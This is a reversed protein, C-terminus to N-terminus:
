RAWQEVLNSYFNSLGEYKFNGLLLTNIEDFTDKIKYKNQNRKLNNKNGNRLYQLVQEEVNNIDNTNSPVPKLLNTLEDLQKKQINLVHYMKLKDTVMQNIENKIKQLFDFNEKETLEIQKWDKPEFNYHVNFGPYESDFAEETDTNSPFNENGKRWPDM